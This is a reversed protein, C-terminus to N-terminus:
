ISSLEETENLAIWVPHKYLDYYTVPVSSENNKEIMKFVAGHESVTEFRRSLWKAYSVTLFPLPLILFGPIFQNIGFLAMMVLQQLILTAIYSYFVTPFHVGGAEYMSVNVYILQYKTVCLGWAFYICGFFLIFPSMVSYMLCLFVVIFASGYHSSYHFAQIANTIVKNKERETKAIWHLKFWRVILPGILLLSISFGVLGQILIYNMYFLGQKPITESLLNPINNPDQIMAQLNGFISGSITYSLFVQVVLFVTYWIQVQSQVHVLSFDRTQLLLKYLLWPVFSFLVVLIVAPLVGNLFAVVKPSVKTINSLWHLAKVHSLTQINALGSVFTVPITWFIILALISAISLFKRFLSSPRSWSFANWHIGNPDAASSTVWQTAKEFLCTQRAFAAQFKYRFLIFFAIMNSNNDKLIKSREVAILIKKERIMENCHQLEKLKSRNAIGLTHSPSINHCGDGRRINTSDQLYRWELREKRGLLKELKVQLKQISELNFVPVVYPVDQPFLRNFYEQVSEFVDVSKPVDVLLLTYNTPREQARYQMRYRYYARYDFFLFLLATFVVLYEFLMSVWMRPDNRQLNSMSILELGSTYLPNNSKLHHRGSTAYVPFLVVAASLCLICCIFLGSRMFRTFMVADLGHTQILKDETYLWTLLLWAFIGKPQEPAYVPEDNYDNYFSLQSALM